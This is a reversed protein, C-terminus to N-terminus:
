LLFSKQILRISKLALFLGLPFLYFHFRALHINDITGLSVNSSLDYPDNPVYCGNLKYGTLFYVFM